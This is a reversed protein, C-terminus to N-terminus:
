VIRSTGDLGFAPHDPAVNGSATVIIQAPNQSLHMERRWVAYGDAFEQNVRGATWAHNPAARVTGAGVVVADALSRLLGMVFRDPENFGSVEGGSGHQPDVTVVGDLSEVFNVIVTPASPNLPVALQPGYRHLESPLPGGRTPGDTMPTEFLTEFSAGRNAHPRHPMRAPYRRARPDHGNATPRATGPREADSGYGESRTLSLRSVRRDVVPGM